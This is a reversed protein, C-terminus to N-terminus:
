LPTAPGIPDTSDILAIDFKERADAVFRVGDDIIVQARPDRGMAAATQPLHERCADVVMRDIEVMVCNEVNKHRLVERLTGGDGGCIVLVRKANPHRLIPPHAMMEHYIFEDRESCMVLGDNLLMKGFGYTEVIEVKQFESQGAFIRRKLPFRNTQAGPIKEEVFDADLTRM